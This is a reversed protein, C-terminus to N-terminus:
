FCLSDFASQWRMWFDPFTKAVCSPNDIVIGPINLGLVSLAMAMRHDDYTELTAGHMRSIPLPHIVWYDSGCDVRIGIKRLETAIATFRDTEKVKLSSLGRIVSPQDAFVAVVALTMAADPMSEMDVSVSTLTQPGTVTMGNHREVICGMSELVAAFGIDGQASQPSLNEVKVTGGTVAAAAMFYTASSADAEIEYSRGLYRQGAKVIFRQYAENQFDAGFDNMLRQTLDIYPRSILVGSIDLTVDSKAMPATLLVATLYQSSVDGNLSCRGGPLGGGGVKVPPCGTGLTDSVSAGLSNLASILHKIPRERMRATGDLTAYSGTPLLTAAATLFRVTTGSNGIYIPEAGPDSFLGGTGDVSLNAEHDQYIDIGFRSLADAMFRTDDSILPNVLTSRGVALASLLLARNTVSKSGPINVTAQPSRNVPRLSQQAPYSFSLM